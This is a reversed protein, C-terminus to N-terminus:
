KGVPKMNKYIFNHISNTTTKLDVTLYWINNIRKGVSQGDLPFRAQDIVKNESNLVSGAFRMLTMNAMSTELNPLIQSAFVPFVEQGSSKLKSFLAVLVTRQRETREYDGNGVGRIRTYAVAQRGTLKQLGANNVHVAPIKDYIAVENLYNNLYPLEPDKVNVNVGGLADVIKAASYFDVNMYDKIDLDFNQNITKIALQPGGFAYAANIKDMGHGEINVYTDRMISSMKIKGTQQDISIVMIVDSNARDDDKRRDVAFLAINFPPNTMAKVRDRTKQSIGLAEPTRNLQVAVRKINVPSAAVATTDQANVHYSVVMLIFGFWLKKM